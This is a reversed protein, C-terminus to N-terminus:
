LLVNAFTSKSFQHTNKHGVIRGTLNYLKKKLDGEEVTLEM